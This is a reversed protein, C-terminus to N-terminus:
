SQSEEPGRRIAAAIDSCVADYHSPVAFARYQEAVKAAREREALVAAEADAKLVYEGVSPANGRFDTFERSGEWEAVRHFEYVTM